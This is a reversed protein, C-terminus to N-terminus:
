DVSKKEPFPHSFFLWGKGDVTMKVPKHDKSWLGVVIPEDHKILAENDLRYIEVAESFAIKHNFMVMNHGATGFESYGEPENFPAIHMASLHGQVQQLKDDWAEAFSKAKAFLEERVKRGSLDEASKFSITTLLPNEFIVIENEMANYGNRGFIFSSGVKVRRIYADKLKLYVRPCYPARSQVLDPPNVKWWHKGTTSSYLRCNLIMEAAELDFEIPLPLTENREVVWEKMDPPLSFM